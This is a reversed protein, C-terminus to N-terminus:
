EGDLIKDICSECVHSYKDFPFLVFKIKHCRECRFM